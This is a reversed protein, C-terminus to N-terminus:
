ECNHRSAYDQSNRAGEPPRGLGRSAARGFDFGILQLQRFEVALLLQAADAILFGLLRPRFDGPAQQLRAALAGGANEPLATANSVLMAKAAKAPTM